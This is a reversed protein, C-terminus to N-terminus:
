DALFRLSLPLFHLPSFPSSLLTITISLPLILSLFAADAANFLTDAIAAIFYDFAIIMFLMLLLCRRVRALRLPM